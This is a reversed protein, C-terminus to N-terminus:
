AKELENPDYNYEAYAGDCENPEPIYVSLFMSAWMRCKSMYDEFAVTSLNTTSETIFARDKYKGDLGVEIEKTLFKAGLFAHLDDPNDGTHEALLKIVVGWYYRNQNNSRPKQMTQLTMFVRGDKKNALFKDLAPKDELKLRGSEISGLFTKKM